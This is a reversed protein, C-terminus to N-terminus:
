VATLNALIKLHNDMTQASAGMMNEVIERAEEEEKPIMQTQAFYLEGSEMRLFFSGWRLNCNIEALHVLLEKRKEEPVYLSFPATFMLLRDEEDLFLQAYFVGQDGSIQFGVGEPHHSLQIQSEEAWETLHDQIKKMM